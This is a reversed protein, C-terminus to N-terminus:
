TPKFVIFIYLDFHRTGTLLLLKAKVLTRVHVTKQLLCESQSVNLNLDNYLVRAINKQM